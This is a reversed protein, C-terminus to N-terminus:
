YSVCSIFARLSVVVVYAHEDSSPSFSVKMLLAHKMRTMCGGEHGDHLGASENM